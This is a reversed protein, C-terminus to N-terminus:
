FAAPTKEGELPFGQWKIALLLPAPPIYFYHGLLLLVLKMLELIIM